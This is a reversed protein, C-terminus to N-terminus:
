PRSPRRYSARSFGPPASIGAQELRALAYDFAEDISGVFTQARSLAPVVWGLATVAGRVLDNEIVAVSAVVPGGEGATVVKTRDALRRRVVASPRAIAFTDTLLVVRERSARARALRSELWDFYEDVLRETAEGFWTMVVISPVREDIVVSADGDILASTGDSRQQRM